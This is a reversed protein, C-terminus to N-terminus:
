ATAAHGGGCGGHGASKHEHGHEGCCGDKHQQTDEGPGGAPKGSEGRTQHPQPDPRTETKSSM